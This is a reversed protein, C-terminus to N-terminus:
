RNNWGNHSSRASGLGRTSLALSVFTESKNSHGHSKNCLLKNNSVSQRPDADRQWSNARFTECTPFVLFNNRLEFSKPYDKTNISMNAERNLILIM